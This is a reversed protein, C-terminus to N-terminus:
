RIRVKGRKNKRNSFVNGRQECYNCLQQYMNIFTANYPDYRSAGTSIKVTYTCFPGIGDSVIKSKYFTVIYDGTEENKEIKLVSSADYSFDDSHWEISNDKILGNDSYSYYKESDDSVIHKFPKKSIVSDYLDDFINYVHKNDKTISYQYFDEMDDDSSSCSWYLCLDSGYYIKFPGEDTKIVFREKSNSDYSRKLELM